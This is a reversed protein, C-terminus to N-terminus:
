ELTGTVPLNKGQKGDNDAIISDCEHSWFFKKRQEVFVLGGGVEEGRGGRVGIEMGFTVDELWNLRNRWRFPWSVELLGDDPWSEERWREFHEGQLNYRASLQVSLSQLELIKPRSPSSLSLSVEQYTQM